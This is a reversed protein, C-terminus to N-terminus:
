QSYFIGLKMTRAAECQTVNIDLKTFNHTTLQKFIKIRCYRLQPDEVRSGRAM